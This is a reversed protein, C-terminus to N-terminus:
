TPAARDYPPPAPPLLPRPRAQPPAVPIPHVAQGQADRAVGGVGLLHHLVRQPRHAALDVGEPPRRGEAGPHVPDGSVRRVLLQPPPPTPPVLHRPFVEGRGEILLALM